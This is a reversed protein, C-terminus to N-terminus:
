FLQKGGPSTSIRTIMFTTGNETGNDLVIANSHSETIRRLHISEATKRKGTGFFLHNLGSDINRPPIVTSKTTAM